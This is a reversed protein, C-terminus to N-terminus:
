DVPTLKADPNVWVLRLDPRKKKKALGTGTLGYRRLSEDFAASMKRQMEDHIFDSLAALGSVDVTLKSM